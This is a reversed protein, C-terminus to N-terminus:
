RECLLVTHADSTAALYKGLVQSQRSWVALTAWIVAAQM